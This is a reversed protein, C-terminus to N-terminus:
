ASHTDVRATQKVPEKNKNAKYMMRFDISGKTPAGSRLFYDKSRSFSIPQSHSECNTSLSQALNEQQSPGKPQSM